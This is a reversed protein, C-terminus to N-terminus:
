VFYKNTKKAPAIQCRCNRPELRSGQLPVRCYQDALSHRAADRVVLNCVKKQLNELLVAKLSFDGLDHGVISGIKYFGEPLIQRM